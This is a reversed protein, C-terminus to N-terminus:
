LRELADLLLHRGRLSGRLLELPQEVRCVRSGVGGVGLREGGCGLQRGLRLLRLREDGLHLRDARRVLLRLRLRRPEHLPQRLPVAGLRLRDLVRRARVVPSAPEGVLEGARLRRRSVLLAQRPSRRPPARVGLRRARLLAGLELPRFLLRRPERLARLLLRPRRPRQLRRARTVALRRLIRTFLRILQRPSARAVGLLHGGRAAPARRHRRLVHGRAGLPAVPVPDHAVLPVLELVRVCLERSLDPDEGRRM